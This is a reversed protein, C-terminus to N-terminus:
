RLKISFKTQLFFLSLSITKIYFASTNFSQTAYIVTIYIYLYIYIEVCSAISINSFILKFKSCLTKENRSRVVVFAFKYKRVVDHLTNYQIKILKINKRIRKIAATCRNPRYIIIVVYFAESVFIDIKRKNNNNRM